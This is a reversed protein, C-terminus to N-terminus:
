GCRSYFKRARANVEFVVLYIPIATPMTHPQPPPSPLPPPPPPTASATAPIAPASPTVATAATGRLTAQPEPPTVAEATAEAAAAAAAAPRAQCHEEREIAANAALHAEAKAEATATAALRAQYQEEREIAANAALHAEAKKMLAASVGTGRTERALFFQEVEGEQAVSFGVIRQGGFGITLSSM